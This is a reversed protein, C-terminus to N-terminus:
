KDEKFIILKLFYKIVLFNFVITFFISLISSYPTFFECVDVSYDHQFINSTIPCSTVDSNLITLQYNDGKLLSSVSDFSTKLKDIDSSINNFFTGFQSIFSDTDSDSGNVTLNDDPKMNKIDDLEKNIDDLKQNTQDIRSTIPTTDLTVNIDSSSTSSVGTDGCGSVCQGNLTHYQLTCNDYVPYTITYCTYGDVTSLTTQVGVNNYLSCPDPCTNDTTSTSTDTSTSSDTTSTSTDTSTSSDTTSTSTDTSTSSDTTSTSTDTSTSSDTTSTSTDTSTSSDTTSTSTDTSTSSDTTSTSTDTSTSSDTTSTNTTSSDSDSTYSTSSDSTIFCLSSNVETASVTLSGDSNESCSFSSINSDYNTQCYTNIYSVIDSCSKCTITIQGSDPDCFETQVFSLSGCKQIAQQDLEESTPCTPLDECQETQSDFYQGPPCKIDSGCVWAHIYTSYICGDAPSICYSYSDSYNYINTWTNYPYDRHCILQNDFDFHDQLCSLNYSVYSVITYNYLVSNFVIQTSSYDTDPYGCGWSSTRLPPSLSIVSFYSSQGNFRQLLVSDVSFSYSFFM